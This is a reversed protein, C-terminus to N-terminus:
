APTGRLRLYALSAALMLGYAITSSISAGVIGVTPLLWFNCAVNVLSAAAPAWVAVPPMGEAAFYNMLVGNIGLLVVGPLLWLFAPVAPFFQEGYLLGVIPRALVAAAASFVVMTLGVWKAISRAKLWRQEHDETATLRPFAITGAVVPLMYVLDAMSAAISYQGTPIAGLIYSCLLVDVRIVTYSFFAAVYARMGYACHERLIALSLRLRQHVHSRLRLLAWVLSVAAILLGAVAVSIVSVSQTLILASLLVVMGVRTVLEVTNYARVEHTGLLLNQMLLYALGVPIGALALALLAGSLPFLSPWVAAAAWAAGALLSALGLGVFLSNGVLVPLLSPKKAVYYTNSSHLGMNGFQVGIATIAAIAAQLGRGEPGLSRAILVSTVLGIAVLAVRTAMTEAVKWAFDSEVLRGLRGSAWPPLRDVWRRLTVEPRM